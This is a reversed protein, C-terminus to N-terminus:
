LQEVEQPKEKRKNLPKKDKWKTDERQRIYM